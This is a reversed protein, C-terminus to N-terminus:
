AASSTRNIQKWNLSGAHILYTRAMRTFRPTETGGSFLGGNM